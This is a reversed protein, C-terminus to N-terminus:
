RSFIWLVLGNGIMSACFFFTYVIGLLLHLSKDPEPYQMWHEPIFKLDEPPVNWGTQHVNQGNLEMVRFFCLSLNFESQNTSFIM